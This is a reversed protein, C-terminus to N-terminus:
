LPFDSNKGQLDIIRVNEYGAAMEAERRHCSFLIIQREKALNQLVNLAARARIDDFNVLADDLIIPCSKEPPLALECIALRISLYLQDIAGASLFTAERSVVDGVPRAAARLEKDLLISDYSNDTFLSFLEATRMSLRPTMRHQIEGGAEALIDSALVLAEHEMKVSEYEEQLNRLKEQLEDIDPLVSQRGEWIAGQERVNKLDAEAAELLKTYQASESDGEVFDLQQLISEDLEEQSKRAKDLQTSLEQKKTLLETANEYFKEHTDLILEVEDFSSVGYQALILKEQLRAKEHKKVISFIRLGQVAALLGTAAAPIYFTFIGLAAGIIIIGALLAINLSITGGSKAEDMLSVTKKRELSLKQRCKRPDERGFLGNDLKKGVEDIEAELEELESEITKIRGRYGSLMEMSERRARQRIEGVKDLLEDRRNIAALKARRLDEGKKGERMTEILLERNESIEKELEPLRGSKNYRRRRIASDLREKSETYSINEEGTQVIAAIRKELEPSGGVSLKGQGIFASREFVDKSVGTLTEGATAAPIGAATGTGTLKATFERMPANAKGKRELSIARGEYTIDMTGAMAIGSWPAYKIKDPKVGGKERASSDIGYLMAKIFGCWTSKGSENPAYIINLGESLELSDNQLKGFSATMKRIIM